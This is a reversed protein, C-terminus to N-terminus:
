RLSMLYQFRKTISAGPETSIEKKLLQFFEVYYQEVAKKGGIRYHLWMATERLEEDYPDYQLMHELMKLERLPAIMNYRYYELMKRAGEMFYRHYIERYSHCWAGDFCELLPRYSYLLTEYHEINYTTIINDKLALKALSFADTEVKDELMHLQYGKGINRIECDVKNERFIKNIRCITSRLNINGKEADKDGWINEIIAWKSIIIDKEQLFLFAFVERCKLTIWHIPNELDEVYIHTMGFLTIKIEKSETVVNSDSLRRRRKVREITRILHDKTIPKLLYDIANVRFAEIAYDQYATLFVVEGEYGSQYAKEAIEIGSMEPMEVDLFLVDWDRKVINQYAEVPNTYGVVVINQRKLLLCIYENTLAEDEVVIAKM